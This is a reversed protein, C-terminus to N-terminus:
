NIFTVSDGENDRFSDEFLWKDEYSEVKEIVAKEIFEKLSMGLKACCLKLYKHEEEDMDFSLRKKGM